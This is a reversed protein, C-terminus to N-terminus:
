EDDSDGQFGFELKTERRERHVVWSHESLSLGDEFILMLCEPRECVYHNKRSHSRLEEVGKFVEFEPL